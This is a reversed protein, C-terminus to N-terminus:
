LIAVKEKLIRTRLLPHISNYTIVDVDMGLVEQLELKLGALDLLSKRGKFEVLIDVDSGENAEGRAVSGFISARKVDHKRLIDLIKKKINNINERKNAKAVIFVM